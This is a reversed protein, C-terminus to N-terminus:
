SIRRKYLALGALFSFVCFGYTMLGLPTLEISAIRLDYLAHLPADLLIHFYVGLFSALIVGRPSSNQHLKFMSVLRSTHGRLLYMPVAIIISAIAGGELSHFWGYKSYSLRFIFAVATEIDPAISAIILTPFDLYSFLLLGIMLAPGLHFPTFPM